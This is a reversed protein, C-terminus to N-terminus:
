PKSIQIIIDGNIKEPGVQPLHKILVEGNKKLQINKRAKESRAVVAQSRFLVVRAGNVALLGPDIDDRAFASSLVKKFKVEDTDEVSLKNFEADTYNKVIIYYKLIEKRANFAVNFAPPPVDPPVDPPVNYFSSDLRIEIVGFVGTRQMETDSYYTVTKHTGPYAEEVTYVGPAQGTLYTLNYSVTAGDNSATKTDVQLIKGGADKLTVTVPRATGTILHSFVRGILIVGNAEDLTDPDTANRYLPTLPTLADVDFDYKTINGFYPNILKLGIRLNEEALPVLATGTEDAKFFVQLVGDDVRTILKGNKLLKATDSPIIFDFDECGETYYTHSVRVTFLTRFQNTM